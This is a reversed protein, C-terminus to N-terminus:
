RHCGSCNEPPNLNREKILRAGIELQNEPAEWDMNTVEDLPRLHEEPQRHCSLCWGMSLPESMRVVEMEAVNGHCSMCGVGANIHVSHEFYAFGPLQHVKVWKVGVGTSASERILALKESDANVMKHCNM